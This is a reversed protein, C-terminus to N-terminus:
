LSQGTSSDFFHLLDLDVSLGIRDGPAASASSAFRGTLRASPEALPASGNDGVASAESEARPGDLQIHILTESGLGEALEVSGNLVTPDLEDPPALSLAEPRIGVLLDQELYHQLQPHRNAAESSVVLVSEGIRCCLRGEDQTLRGAVINMPPNGMFRAVFANAPRKYLQKPTDFQQVEGQNLVAVRHGMTMAEVQDHTVYVTTTAFESQIRIIEARMQVRLRADLNSLPEDMLFAQPQRVVARGMAVRQRQGGSLMRPKRDLLQEIELIAAIERVRREQEAKPVGRARLGFSLNRAVSMHPYLAYNQFVMAVDRDGPALASVDREGIYIQGSSLRELGAILRLATTKGCGSPGVLVVFEGDAIELDIGRVAEVGNAFIKRVQSLTVAAVDGEEDAGRRRTGEGTV